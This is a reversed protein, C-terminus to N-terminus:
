RVKCLVFHSKLCNCILVVHLDSANVSLVRFGEVLGKIYGVLLSQAGGFDTEDLVHVVADFCQDLSFSLQLALLM